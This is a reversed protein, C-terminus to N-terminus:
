KSKAEMYVNEVVSQFDRTGGGQSVINLLNNKYGNNAIVGAILDAGFEFLVSSLPTTPGIVITYGNSIELLRELTKNIITTGSIIVLDCKPLLYETASAPLCGTVPKHEFVYINNKNNKMSEIFPFKGIIGIDEYKKFINLVHKFINIKKYYKPKLQANIAAAGIGAETLNWSHVLSTLKMGVLKGVDRPTDKLDSMTHALGIRNGIKVATYKLGIRVDDIPADQIEKLIEEILKMKM